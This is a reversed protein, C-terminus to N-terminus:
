SHYKRDTQGDTVCKESNEWWWIMMVNEPTIVLSSLSTWAFPWPWVNCTLNVYTLVWSSRKRATVGTQIWMHHYFSACLKINSLMPAWNNKLTLWSIKHDCLKLFIMSKSGFQANRSQLELKFEGIAVSHHLFSPLLISSTGMQKELDETLNWPWVAWFDDNHVLHWLRVSSCVSLQVSPRVSLLTRLAAQDCSFINFHKITKSFITCVYYKIYKSHIRVAILALSSWIVNTQSIAQHCNNGDTAGKVLM